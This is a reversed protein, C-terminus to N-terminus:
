FTAQLPALVQERLRRGQGDVRPHVGSLEGAERWGSRLGKACMVNATLGANQRFGRVAATETHDDM